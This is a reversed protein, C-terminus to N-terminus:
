AQSLDKIVFHANRAKCALEHYKYLVAEYADYGSVRSLVAGDQDMWDWDSAQYEVLETSTLGYLANEPCDREWTLARQQQGSTFEGPVSWAIGSYGAKLAVNDVNRRMSQLLNAVFRSVGANSVLLDVSRGSAIETEQIAQNVLTESVARNTGSNSYVQANWAAYTTYSVGHLSSDNTVIKRLGTLEYQGDGPSGSGSSQGGAGARFVRHTSDTSVTAGSITITANSSSVATVTRASAVATPSAVTGIDVVMGGDFQGLQRFQTPTTTAVLNIVTTTTSTITAAIVGDATGWIQRNIDRKLDNTIGDMESKVARLFAGRDSNMQKIVPGELQIRGYQYRLPVYTDVYGQNGATPLASGSGRAGVGSSRSVHVPNVARRGVVDDTNKEIQSLIFFSQNLVETVPAKYDEKLIADVTTFTAAM